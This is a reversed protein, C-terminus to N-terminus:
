KEMPRLGWGPPCGRLHWKWLHFYKKFRGTFARLRFLTLMALSFFWITKLAFRRGARQVASRYEAAPMNKRWSYRESECSEIIARLSVSKSSGGRHHIVRFRPSWRLVAGAQVARACFDAEEGFFFYGEDMGNLKRWLDRRVVMFAGVVGSVEVLEGPTDRVLHYNVLVSTQLSGDPNLLQGGLVDLKPHRDLLDALAPMTGPILEADSNMLILWEGAALRAGANNAAAFGRNEDLAIIKLGPFERRLCAVSDDTSHNDVLIIERSFAAAHKAISSIAARTLPLTNYSVIIFSFRPRRAAPNAVAPHDSGSM